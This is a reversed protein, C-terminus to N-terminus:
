DEPKTEELTSQGRYKSTVYPAFLMNPKNKVEILKGFNPNKEKTGEIFEDNDKIFSSKNIVNQEATNIKEKLIKDLPIKGEFFEKREEKASKDEKYNTDELFKLINKKNNKNLLKKTIKIM